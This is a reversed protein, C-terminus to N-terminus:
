RGYQTLLRVPQQFLRFQQLSAAGPEDGPAHSSGIPLLTLHEAANGWLLSHWAVADRAFDDTGGVQFEFIALLNSINRYIKPCHSTVTRLDLPIASSGGYQALM